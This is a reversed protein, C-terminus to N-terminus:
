KKAKIVVDKDDAISSIVYTILKEAYKYSQFNGLEIKVCDDNNDKFKYKKALADFCSTTFISPKPNKTTPIPKQIPTFDIPNTKIIRDIM